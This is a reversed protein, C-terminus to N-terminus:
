RAATVAETLKQSVFDVHEDDMDPFIPLSIAGSSFKEAVPFEGESHGFNKRYYTHLHVPRYHVMVGIGSKRLFDFVRKHDDPSVHIPFLHYSHGPDDPPLSVAVLNKLRERYMSAIERRRAVFGDLRKMQSEGLACSIDSLRYNYGLSIMDNDWAGEYKRTFDNPNKVIGHSRFLRLRNALDPSDTTVMGGEATTIHKVPHFSFTTMDAGCGVKQNGRTAGLAHSADEVVIAGARAAIKKLEGVEAPYGAFSVPAIVKVPRSTKEIAESAAVPDLCLTDPSVDAFIPHGGCYIASNSTAAFTLPPAIVADGPSVGAASMAAHLAATGNAYSVAHAAGVYGAFTKEFSEVAPGMTLWDGRLIKVVADIDDESISQHGYPLYKEYM